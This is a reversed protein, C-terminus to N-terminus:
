VFLPVINPFRPYNLLFIKHGTSSSSVFQTLPEGQFNCLEITLFNTLTEAELLTVMECGASPTSPLITIGELPFLPNSRFGPKLFSSNVQLNATPWHNDFLPTLSKTNLTNCVEGIWSINPGLTSLHAM